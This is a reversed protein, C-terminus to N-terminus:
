FTKMVSQLIHNEVSQSPEAATLEIVPTDESGQNRFYFKILHLAHVTNHEQIYQQTFTCM